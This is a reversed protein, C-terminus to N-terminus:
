TKIEAENESIDSDETLELKDRVSVSIDKRSSKSECSLTFVDVLAVLRKLDDEKFEDVMNEKVTSSRASRRLLSPRLDEHQGLLSM